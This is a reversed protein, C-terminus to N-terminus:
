EKGEMCTKCSRLRGNLIDNWRCTLENGCECRCNYYVIGKIEVASAITLKGYKKGIKDSSRKLKNSISYYHYADYMADYANKSTFSQQTKEQTPLNNQDLYVTYLTKSHKNQIEMKEACLKLFENLRIKSTKM